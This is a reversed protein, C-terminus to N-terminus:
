SLGPVGVFAERDLEELGRAGDAGDRLTGRIERALTARPIAIVVPMRRIQLVIRPDLVSAM